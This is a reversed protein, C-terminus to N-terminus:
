IYAIKNYNANKKQFKNILYLKNFNIISLKNNNIALQLIIKLKIKIQM